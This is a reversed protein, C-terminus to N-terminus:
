SKLFHMITRCINPRANGRHQLYEKSTSKEYFSGGAHHNLLFADVFPLAEENRDVHPTLGGLSTQCEQDSLHEISGEQGGCPLCYM